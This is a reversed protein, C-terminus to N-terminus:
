GCVLQYPHPEGSHRPAGSQHRSDQRHYRVGTSAAGHRHPRKQFRDSDVLLRLLNKILGNMRGHFVMNICIIISDDDPALPIVYVFNGVQYPSLTGHHYVNTVDLKPVRMLEKSLDAEWIVQIILPLAHGFKM